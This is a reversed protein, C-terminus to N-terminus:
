PAVVVLNDNNAASRVPKIYTNDADINENNGAVTELCDNMAACPRNQGALRYSAPLVIARISGTGGVNLYGGASTNDCSLAGANVDQSLLCAQVLILNICSTACPPPPALLAINLSVNTDIRATCRPAVAYVMFQQWNNSAFWAPLYPSLSPTVPAPNPGPCNAIPGTPVYGRYTGATPINGPLPAAYPYYQNATYYNGLALRVERAVRLEVVPFLAERTIPLLRDNFTSSELVTTFTNDGNANEGEFYNAFNNENATNRAQTGVVPGPSFVIAIVNTAPTNGTITLAGPTESNLVGPFPPSPWNRFVPSLAYWLREGSGDRLDPLGLTRWPLRGFYSTCQGTGVNPGNASGDNDTDPCPLAGPRNEASAAYGILGERAHALAAATKKDREISEKAPTAMGYVLAIVGLGVLLLLIIAAQGHQLMRSSASRPRVQSGM